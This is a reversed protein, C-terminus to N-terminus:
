LIGIHIVHLSIGKHTEFYICKEVPNYFFEVLAGRKFAVAMLEPWGLVFFCVPLILAIM